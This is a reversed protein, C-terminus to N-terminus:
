TPSVAAGGDRAATTLENVLAAGRAPRRAGGSLSRLRDNRLCEEPVRVWM